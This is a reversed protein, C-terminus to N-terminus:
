SKLKRSGGEKFNRGRKDLKEALLPCAEKKRFKKKEKPLNILNGTKKTLRQIVGGWVANGIKQKGNRTSRRPGWLGQVRQVKPKELVM